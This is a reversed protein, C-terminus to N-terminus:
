VDAHSREALTVGVRVTLLPQMGASGTFSGALPPVSQPLCAVAVAIHNAGVLEGLSPDFGKWGAGPLYVEAWAHTTGSQDLLAADYLYGSVFRAALGLERAAVVFLWAMDRCSGSGLSLTQTPSQVGAEDRRQYRIARCIGSCLSRLLAYTQIVQGPRWFGGLWDRLIASGFEAGARYPALVALTDIDYQFPFNVAHDQVLFDLPMEDYHQIVVDSICCLSQANELFEVTLVCNDYVDRQWRRHHRPSIDLRSYEIRIDHGERPRMMLVHAHLQVVQAFDYRTEHVIRLRRM